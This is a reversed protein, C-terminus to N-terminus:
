AAHYYDTATNLIARRRIWNKSQEVCQREILDVERGLLNGLEQEMAVLDMLSWPSEPAFTVLLDVDSDPRFDERLVSGFLELRVIRWKRCFGEIAPRPLDLRSIM